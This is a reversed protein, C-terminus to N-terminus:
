SLSFDVPLTYRIRVPGSCDKGPNWLPLSRIVRIAELDLEEYGSTRAVTVDSITGDINIVFQIWVKGEDGNEKSISPYIIHTSIYKLLAQDGGPFFPERTCTDLPEAAITENQAFSVLNFCMLIGVAVKKM